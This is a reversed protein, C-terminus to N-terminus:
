WSKADMRKAVLIEFVSILGPSKTQLGWRAPTISHHLVPTSFFFRPVVAEKM